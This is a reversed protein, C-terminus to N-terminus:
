QNEALIALVSEGAIVKDGVKCNISSNLPMYIDVRSGFRILGYREGQDLYQNDSVFSLIRRAILGAIQVVVLQTGNTNSIIMSSRENKESAKDLSANFFSGKKYIVKDIKGEIPSRNVHVNFVNMFVCIRLMQNTGFQVEQPPIANDILCVEGDASSIIYNSNKPTKREPNRFFWLTFLTLLYGVYALPLYILSMFLSSVFFIFAFKWGEPHIYFKSNLDKNKM